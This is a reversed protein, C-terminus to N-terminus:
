SPGQSQCLGRLPPGSPDSPMTRSSLNLFVGQLLVLCPKSSLFFSYNSTSQTVSRLVGAWAEASVTQAVCLCIPAENDQHHLSSLGPSSYWFNTLVSQYLSSPLFKRTWTKREKKRKHQIKRGEGRGTERGRQELHSWLIATAFYLQWKTSITFYDESLVQLALRRGGGGERVWVKVRKKM